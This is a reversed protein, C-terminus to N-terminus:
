GNLCTRKSRTDDHWKQEKKYRNYDATEKFKKEQNIEKYLQEVKVYDM